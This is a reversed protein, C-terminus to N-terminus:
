SPIAHCRCLEDFHRANGDLEGLEDDGETIQAAREVLHILRM